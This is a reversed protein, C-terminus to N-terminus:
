TSLIRFPLFGASRGTSCGVFNSNMMLKFAAFFIPRVIGGFRNARASLTILDVVQSCDATLLSLLVSVSGININLLITIQKSSVRKRSVIEKTSACCGFFIGRIPYRTAGLGEALEVRMSANRWPKRSSPYMSPFFMMM